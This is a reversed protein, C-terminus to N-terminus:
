RLFDWALPAGLRQRYRAVPFVRDPDEVYLREMAGPWPLTLEGAGQFNMPVDVRRGDWPGGFLQVETM